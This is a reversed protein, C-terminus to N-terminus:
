RTPSSPGRNQGTAWWRIFSLGSTAFSAVGFIPHGLAGAVLGTIAFVVFVLRLVKRELVQQELAVRQARKMLVDERRDALEIARATNLRPQYGSGVRKGIHAM